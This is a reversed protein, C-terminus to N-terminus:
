EKRERGSREPRTKARLGRIWGGAMRGVEEILVALVEYQKSPILKGEWALQLFVVDAIGIIEHNRRM